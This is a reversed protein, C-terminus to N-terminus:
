RLASPSSYTTVSSGASSSRMRAPKSCVSRPSNMRMDGCATSAVQRAIPARSRFASSPAAVRRDHQHARLNARGHLLQGRGVQRLKTTSLKLSIVRSVFITVTPMTASPYPTALWNDTLGNCRM